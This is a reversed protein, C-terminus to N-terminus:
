LGNVLYDKSVKQPASEMTDQLHNGKVFSYTIHIPFNCLQLVQTCQIGIVAQSDNMFWTFMFPPPFTGKILLITWLPTPTFFTGFNLKQHLLNKQLM